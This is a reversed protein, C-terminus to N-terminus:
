LNISCYIVSTIVGFAFLFLTIWNIKRMKNNRQTINAYLVEDPLGLDIEERAKSSNEVSILHSALNLLLTFALLLWSIIILLNYNAPNQKAFKEVFGISLALSGASLYVLNKEFHDQSDNIAEIIKDRDKDEMNSKTELM